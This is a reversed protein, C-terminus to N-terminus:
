CRGPPISPASFFKSFNLLNKTYNRFFIHKIRKQVHFAGTRGELGVGRTWGGTRGGGTRDRTRDRWDLRGLEVGLRVEM